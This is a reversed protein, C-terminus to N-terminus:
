INKNTISGFLKGNESVRASIELNIKNIADQKDRSERTNLDNKVEMEKIKEQFFSKNKKNALVAKYKPFLFNRAFGPKVVVEDGLNGLNNVKELLIIKMGM